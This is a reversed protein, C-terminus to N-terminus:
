LKPCRKFGSIYSFHWLGLFEFFTQVPVVRDFSQLTIDRPCLRMWRFRNIPTHLNQRLDNDRGVRVVCVLRAASTPVIKDDIAHAALTSLNQLM